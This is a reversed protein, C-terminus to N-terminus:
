RIAPTKLPNCLGLASLSVTGAKVAQATEISGRFTSLVRKPKHKAASWTYGMPRGTMSLLPCAECGKPWCLQDEFFAQVDPSATEEWLKAGGRRQSSLSGCAKGATGSLGRSCM